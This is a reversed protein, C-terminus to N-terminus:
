IVLITSSSISFDCFDQILFSQGGAPTVSTNSPVTVAESFDPLNGVANVIQFIEIDGFLM